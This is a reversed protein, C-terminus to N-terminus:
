RQKGHMTGLSKVRYMWCEALNKMSDAMAEFKRRRGEQSTWEDQFMAAAMMSVDADTIQKSRTGHDKEMQLQATAQSRMAGFVVQNEAEWEQRAVNATVWLRHALRANTEAEDLAGQLTGYDSRKEGIRLAKELRQYTPWPDEVFVADVIRQMDAPVPVETAKNASDWDLPSRPKKAKELEAKLAAGPKEKPLNAESNDAGVAEAAAQRKAKREARYLAEKAEDDAVADEVDRDVEAPAAQTRKRM